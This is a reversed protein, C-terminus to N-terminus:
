GSSLNSLLISASLTIILVTEFSIKLTLQEVDLTNIKTINEIRRKMNM